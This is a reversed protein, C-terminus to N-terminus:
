RRHGPRHPANRRRPRRCRTRCRNTFAMVDEAESHLRQEGLNARGYLLRLAQHMQAFFAASHDEAYGWGRTNLRGSIIESYLLLLRGRLEISITAPKYGSGHAKQRNSFVDFFQGLRDALSM